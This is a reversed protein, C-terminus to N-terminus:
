GWVEGILANLLLQKLIQCFRSVVRMYNWREMFFLVGGREVNSIKFVCRGIFFGVCSFGHRNQKKKNEILHDEKKM